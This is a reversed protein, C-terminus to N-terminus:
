WVAGSSLRGRRAVGLFALIGPLFYGIPRAFRVFDDMSRCYVLQACPVKKVQRIRFVFRYADQSTICWLSTCGFNAHELLLDGDHPDLQM